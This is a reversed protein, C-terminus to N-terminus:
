TGVGPKGGHFWSRRKPADSPSMEGFGAFGREIYPANDTRERRTTPVVYREHYHALSLLRHMHRAEKVTLGVAELVSADTKGEVRESRRFARLALQRLLATKVEDENGASLLTSLFQIPIRFHDLDPLVSSGV